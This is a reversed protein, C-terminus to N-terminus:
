SLVGKSVYNRSVFYEILAVVLVVSMIAIYPSGMAAFAGLTADAIFCVVVFVLSFLFVKVAWGKRLIFLISALLGSWVALGFVGWYWKPSSLVFSIQDPTYGQAAFSEATGTISAYFNYVGFLNWILFLIAALWFLISPKQTTM